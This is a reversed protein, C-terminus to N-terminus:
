GFVCIKLKKVGSSINITIKWYDDDPIGMAQAQADLLLEVIEDHQNAYAWYLANCGDDDKKSVSAGYNLLLNALRTRGTRAAEQLLTRRPPEM